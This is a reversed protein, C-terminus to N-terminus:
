SFKQAAGYPTNKYQHKVLSEIYATCFECIAVYVGDLLHVAFSPEGGPSLAKLVEVSTHCRACEHPPNGQTLLDLAEYHRKRCDLCVRVHIGFPTLSSPPVQKGCPGQCRESVVLGIM